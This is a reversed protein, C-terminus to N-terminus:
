ILSARIHPLGLRYRREVPTPRKNTPRSRAIPPSRCGAVRSRQGEAHVKAFSAPCTKETGGRDGASDSLRVREAILTLPCSVDTKKGVGRNGSRQIAGAKVSGAGLLQLQISSAEKKGPRALGHSSAHPLTYCERPGARENGM